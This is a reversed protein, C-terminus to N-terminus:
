QIAWPMGEKFIKYTPRIIVPKDFKNGGMAKRIRGEHHGLVYQLADHVHSVENKEPKEDFYEGGGGLRHINRYRYRGYFGKLLNKCSKDVIIGPKGDIMRTLVRRVAGLRTELDQPGPRVKFGISRLIMYCTKEDTQSRHQGSPDSWVDTINHDPFRQRLFPILKEAFREIGCNDQVFEDLILWQGSAAQQVAIAAPTLGFDMGLWIPRKTSPVIPASAVHVDNFEPFVPKGHQIYGYKGHIHVNVWEQSKDANLAMQTEYYNPPLNEINEAEPSLGSPQKFLKLLPRDLGRTMQVLEEPPEEEFLKYWYSDVDPPNTDMIIGYWGREIDKDPRYRGVRSILNTFITPDIERYENIWAGTIEFSLLNRVDNPDDLPRLMWESEVDNFKIFFTSTSVMWNGALTPPVWEFITKLTTDMLMRKTNRIIAFRTKRIGHKDPPAEAARRLLEMVMASSKGSGYPGMVARILSSDLMFAKITPSPTYNIQM